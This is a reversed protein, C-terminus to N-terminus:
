EVYYKNYICKIKSCRFYFCVDHQMHIIYPKEGKSAAIIHDDSMIERLRPLAAATVNVLEQGSLLCIEPVANARTAKM